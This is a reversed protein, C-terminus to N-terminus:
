DKIWKKVKDTLYAQNKDIYWKKRLVDWKCGIRKAEDKDKFPVFLFTKSYADINCLKCLNKDINTENVWIPHDKVCSNQCLQCCIKSENKNHGCHPCGINKIDRDDWSRTVWVDYSMKCNCCKLMANSSYRDFSVFFKIREPKATQEFVWNLDVFYVACLIDSYTDKNLSSIFCHEKGEVLNICYRAWKDEENEGVNVVIDFPENTHEFVVNKEVSYFDGILNNFPYIQKGDKLWNFLIEKAREKREVKLMKKNLCDDCTQRKRMCKITLKTTDASLNNAEQLFSVADIEFWPEPRDEEDTEHSFCIEFICVIESNDIYAVDAVKRGNFEFAHELEISSSETVEPILSEEYLRCVKCRRKLTIEVKRELLQKLLLKADKHIQSETPHSFHGCTFNEAFHRFHAKNKTGQCLIVDKNCDPCIYKEKKNALSPHTYTKLTKHLAGLNLSDTM